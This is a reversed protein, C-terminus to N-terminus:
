AELSEEIMRDSLSDSFHAAADTVLRALETTEADSRAGTLYAVGLAAVPRGDRTVVPSAICTVGNTTSDHEM